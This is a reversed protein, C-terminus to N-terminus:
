RRRRSSHCWPSLLGGSRSAMQPGPAVGPALGGEALMSVRGGSFAPWADRTPGALGGGPGGGVQSTIVEISAMFRDSIIAVGLFLYVLLLLYLLAGGVQQGPSPRLPVWVPLLVGPKCTVHGSSTGNASGPAESVSAQSPQSSWPLLLLLLPRLLRAAMVDAPVPGVLTNVPGPRM